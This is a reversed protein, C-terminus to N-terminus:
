LNIICTDTNNKIKQLVDQNLRNSLKDFVLRFNYRSIISHDIYIRDIINSTISYRMRDFKRPVSIVITYHGVNNPGFVSDLIGTHIRRLNDEVIEIFIKKNVYNCIKSNYIWM